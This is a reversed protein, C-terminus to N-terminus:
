KNPLPPIDATPAQPVDMMPLGSKGRMMQVMNYGKIFREENADLWGFINDIAQTTQQIATPKPMDFDPLDKIDKAFFNYLKEAEAIDNNCARMCSAKLTMKSTPIIMDINVKKRGFM